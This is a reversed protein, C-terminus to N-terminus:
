KVTSCLAIKLLPEVNIYYRDTFCIRPVNSNMYWHLSINYRIKYINHKLFPIAPSLPHHMTYQLVVWYKRTSINPILSSM